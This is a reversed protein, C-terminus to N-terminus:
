CKRWEAIKAKLKLGSYVNNDIEKQVDLGAKVMDNVDKHPNREDWVVVQFGKTAAKNMLKVLEKNRPENDFVYVADNAPIEIKHLSSDASAVANPLFLTDLPGELVYVRKSLDLREEGFLKLEDEKFKLTIYRLAGDVSPGLTRGQLMTLEGKTNIFPIVLRQDNEGLADNYKTTFASAFKRFNDVYYLRSWQSKPIERGRVYRVCAHDEPLESVRPYNELEKIKNVFRALKTVNGTIKPAEENNDNRKVEGTKFREMLMEKYLNPDLFEVMKPVTTSKGCNHCKFLLGNTKREFFVYGRAKKKDKKSDGCYPCSFNWLMNRKKKFNRLHCSALNLYKSDLAVSM